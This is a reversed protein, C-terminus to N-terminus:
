LLLPFQKLLKELVYFRVQFKKLKLQQILTIQTLLHLWLTINSVTVINTNDNITFSESPGVCTIGNNTYSPTVTINSVISAFSTNVSAFSPINGDGSAALGINTNDNTWSYTTVGDTNETVFVIEDTIDEDCFVLDTISEVQATPNLTITFSESEGTNSVGGSEFTPTVVINAVQTQNSSNLATFASITGNGSAALGISTNDNTWTYTTTGGTNQTTFVIPDIVDEDCFVLSDIPDIQATPNVTIIFTDTPGSNSNGGNEFTPTVVVTTTIPSTGTNVATFGIDSSGTNTLGTTPDTNTWTYTSTGGTNITSFPIDIDDGDTVVMDVTPNVQATPNVTIEFPTAPGTCSVGGNEFTPTVTITAIVPSTGTNIATFAPIDGTGSAALGITTLDNTWSFTTTGNVNTTSFEVLSTDFGNSVIQNGVSNVQGTPNVTIEFTIPDGVNIDGGNEFSPTVVITGSIPADTTNTAIIDINGTGANSLGIESNDNTWTYTMTGGTINTTFEILLNEENCVVQDEVPNVQALPNVTVIYDTPLGECDFGVDGTAIATYTVTLPETTTNFLTEAPITDTGSTTTLGTIGDEATATWTFTVGDTPSSLTVPVTTDGSTIFQDDESFEVQPSPNVTISFTESEGECSVDNYTYVSTM